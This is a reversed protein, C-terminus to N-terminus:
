YFAGATHCAGRRTTRPFAALRFVRVGPLYCVRDYKALGVRAAKLLVKDLDIARAATSPNAVVGQRRDMANASTSVLARALTVWLVRSWVIGPCGGSRHLVARSTLPVVVRGVRSTTVGFFTVLSNARPCRALGSPGFPVLYEACIASERTLLRRLGCPSLDSPPFPQGISLEAHRAHIPAAISRALAYRSVSVLVDVACHRVNHQRKWFRPSHRLAGLGLEAFLAGLRELRELALEALDAGLKM